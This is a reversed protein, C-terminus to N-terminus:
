TQCRGFDMLVYSCALSKSRPLLIKNLWSIISYLHGASKDHLLNNKCSNVFFCESVNKFNGNYFFFWQSIRIFLMVWSMLAKLCMLRWGRSFVFYDNLFYMDWLRSWVSFGCFSRRRSLTRDVRWWHEESRPAKVSESIWPVTYGTQETQGFEMYVSCPCNEWLNSLSWM